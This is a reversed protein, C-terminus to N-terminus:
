LGISRVDQLSRVVYYRGGAKTCDLQFQLQASSQKGRENKVELGIFIGGVIVIIDPIGAKGYKPLRRFGGRQSDFVPINNVRWFFYNKLALYDCIAYQVGVERM